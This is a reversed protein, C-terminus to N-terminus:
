IFIHISNLVSLGLYLHILHYVCHLKLSPRSIDKWDMRIEAWWDLSGRVLVIEYDNGNCIFPLAWNCHSWNGCNFIHPQIIIDKGWFYFFFLPCCQIIICDFVILHAKSTTTSGFRLFVDPACYHKPSLWCAGNAWQIVPWPTLRRIGAACVVGPPQPCQQTNGGVSCLVLGGCDKWLCGFHTGYDWRQM